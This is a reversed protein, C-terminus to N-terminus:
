TDVIIQSLAKYIPTTEFPIDSGQPVAVGVTYELTELKNLKIFLTVFPVVNQELENTVQIHTFCLYNIWKYWINKM